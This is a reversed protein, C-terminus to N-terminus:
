WADETHELSSLVTREFDDTLSAGQDTTRPLSLATWLTLVLM